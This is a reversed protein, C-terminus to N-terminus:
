YFIPNLYYVVGDPFFVKGRAYMKKYIRAISDARFNSEVVLSDGLLEYKTIKPLNKIREAKHEFTENELVPMDVGYHRGNCLAEIISQRDTNKAIVRTFKRGVESLKSVDHSDDNGLCWINNGNELVLDWAEEANGYHNLVEFLDYGRIQLLEEDSYGGWKKPHNLVLLETKDRLVNITFQKVRLNQLFMCDYWVVREAGISLQHAKKYNYGHEYVPIYDSCESRFDNIYQYDSICIVDFNMSKYINYVEEPSNKRGNTLFGWSNSHAHFNANFQHYNTDSFVTLDTSVSPAIERCKSDCLYPIVMMIGQIACLM